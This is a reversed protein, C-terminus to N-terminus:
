SLIFYFLSKQDKRNKGPPSFGISSRSSKSSSSLKSSSMSPSKSSGLLTTESAERSKTGEFNKNSFARKFIAFRGSRRPNVGLGSITNRCNDSSHIFFREKNELRPKIKRFKQRIVVDAYTPRLLKCAHVDKKGEDSSFVEEILLERSGCFFCRKIIKNGGTFPLKYYIIESPRHTQLFNNRPTMACIGMTGGAKKGEKPVEKAGPVRESPIGGNLFYLIGGLFAMERGPYNRLNRKRENKRVSLISM